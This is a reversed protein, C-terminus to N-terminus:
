LILNEDFEWEEKSKKKVIAVVNELTIEV